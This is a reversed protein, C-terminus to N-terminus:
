PEILLIRDDDAGPKGRGDQNSTTLWLRGNADRAVTRLRGYEGKGGKFFYPTPDSVQGGAVKIRWLREGRLAAMWLYGSAYALGAPSAEDTPWTLDPSTYKAPGGTGEVVPWGYDQGPLIRNLEDADHDGFESAWLQGDADFALGEVNRHGWSWIATGFPNGPAPQGDATIRLIKGSLSKKDRAAKKDGGEGTTVYLLGDSGFALRGGDHITGRPIGAFVTEPAGLGDGDLRARQVRNDTATCVYFYLLGDTDFTPSVAVGLLGAEGGPQADPVTGAEVVEGEEQPVGKGTKPATVLLVRASDRETVVARGDPLFDLGWPTKLGTAVTAVVDPVGDVTFAVKGSQDIAATPAASATGSVDVVSVNGGQSCGGAVLALGTLAALGAGRRGSRARM